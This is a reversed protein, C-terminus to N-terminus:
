QSQEHPQFASILVQDLTSRQMGVTMSNTLNFHYYNETIWTPVFVHAPVHVSASKVM